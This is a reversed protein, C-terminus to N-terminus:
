FLFTCYSEDHVENMTIKADSFLLSDESLVHFAYEIKENMSFISLNVDM